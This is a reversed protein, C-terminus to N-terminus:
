KQTGVTYIRLFNSQAKHDLKCLYNRVMFVFAIDALPLDGTTKCTVKLSQSNSKRYERGTKAM